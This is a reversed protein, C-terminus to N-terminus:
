YPNVATSIKKTELGWYVLNIYANYIIEKKTLIEINNCKKVKNHISYLIYQFKCM